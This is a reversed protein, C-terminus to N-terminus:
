HLKLSFTSKSVLLCICVYILDLHYMQFIQSIVWEM